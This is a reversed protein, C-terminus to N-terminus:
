EYFPRLFETLHRRNLVEAETSMEGVVHEHHVERALPSPMTRPDNRELGEREIGRREHEM